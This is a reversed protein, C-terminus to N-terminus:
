CWDWEPCPFAHFSGTLGFHEARSRVAIGNADVGSNSFFSSGGLGVSLPLSGEEAAPIVQASAPLIFVFVSLAALYKLAGEPVVHLKEECGVSDIPPVFSGNPWTYM